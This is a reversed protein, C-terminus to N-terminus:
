IPAALRLGDGRARSSAAAHVDELLRTMAAADRPGSFYHGQGYTCQLEQLLAAQDAREVGEAVVDLGLNTALSTIARLVQSGDSTTTDLEAVFTRDIKVVDIPFRQLLSLSSYGTGFDDIAIRIGMARLTALTRAADEADQMIAGETIELMLQSSELETEQLLRRVQTVLDAHALQRRSLNVSMWPAARTPYSAQWRQLQRCADGLVWEGIHVILGTEEAIPIFESPPISRGHPDKWRSLAEFGVIEGTRLLVIPQYVLSFEKRDFSRRLATQMQLTRLVEQRMEDDFVQYTGRASHKARYMAADANRMLTDPDVNEQPAVAIGISVTLFVDQGRLNFPQELRHRIRDAVLVAQDPSSLDELLLGFEDGGLRAITDGHRLCAALRRGLEVLLLDGSSHGFSDNLLKFRDADIFVVAFDGADRRSARDAVHRLRDMFLTRNALGTLPDRIISSHLRDTMRRLSSTMENFSRALVELEDNTRIEIRTDLDGDTVARTGAILKAIPRTVTRVLVYTFAATGVLTLGIGLILNRSRTADAPEGTNVTIATTAAGFVMLLWCTILLAFKGHLGVRPLLRQLV